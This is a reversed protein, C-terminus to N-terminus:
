EKGREVREKLVRGHIIINYRFHLSRALLLHSIVSEVRRGAELDTYLGNKRKYEIESIREKYRKKTKKQLYIGKPKVLFGLFPVGDETKGM